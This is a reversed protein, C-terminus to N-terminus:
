SRTAHFWEQTNLNRPLSNWLELTYPHLNNRNLADKQLWSSPFIDVMNGDKMVAIKTAVDSALDLDHTILLVAKGSDKKSILLKRFDETAQEGIGPTPEDAVILDAESVWAMLILIRRAQGGSLEFPYKTLISKTLGLRKLGEIIEKKGTHTPTLQKLQKGIKLFPDLADVSQPIYAMSKGRYNQVNKNHVLNGKLRIDGEWSLNTPLIHFLAQAVLSKGSGSAGVLALVEGSKITFSLPHVLRLNSSSHHITLTNVELIRNM